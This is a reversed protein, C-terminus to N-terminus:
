LMDRLRYYAMGAVLAPVHERRIELTSDETVVELPLRDIVLQLTADEVPIHMCRVSDDDEGTILSYLQGPVPKVLADHHRPGVVELPRGDSAKASVVKLIRPDLPIINEGATVQLTCLDSQSDRIGGIERVFDTYASDLYVLAEDDSWLYPKAQDVARRRFEDIVDQATQM